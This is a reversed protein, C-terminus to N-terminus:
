LARLGQPMKKDKKITWDKGYANELKQIYNNPLYLKHGNWMKEVFTKTTNDVYCDKVLMNTWKDYVNSEKDPRSMYIDISAYKVKNDIIKVKTKLINKSNRIGHGIDLEINNKLLLDKLTDYHKESIIIDVDDDNDICGDERVIGLLTGYCIFWDQLNANNLLTCIFILTDNLIEKSMKTGAM